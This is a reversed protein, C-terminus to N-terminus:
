GRSQLLVRLLARQEELLARHEGLLVLQEQHLQELLTVLEQYRAMLRAEEARPQRRLRNIVLPPRNLRLRRVTFTGVATIPYLSGDALLLLHTGLADQRPNWLVSDNPQVPWYDAKYLNCRQCCYLLNGLHDTGGRAQPHFHDVNLLGGTDTETVGCYECAFEARRRVQEWIEAPVTM